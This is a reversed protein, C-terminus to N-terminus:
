AHRRIRYHGGLSKERAPQQGQAADSRSKKEETKRPREDGCIRGDEIRVIRDAYPMTRHDHTVAFVARNPDGAVEQLLALPKM